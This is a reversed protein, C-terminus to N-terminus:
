IQILDVFKEPSLEGITVEKVAICINLPTKILKLRGKFLHSDGSKLFKLLNSVPEKRCAVEEGDRSVILRAKGAALEIDFKYDKQLHM